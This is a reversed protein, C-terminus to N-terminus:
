FSGLKMGPELLAVPTSLAPRHGPFTSETISIPSASLDDAPEPSEAANSVGDHLDARLRDYTAQDIDGALFKDLLQQKRRAFEADGM